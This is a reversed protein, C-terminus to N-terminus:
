NVGGGTLLLTAEVTNLLWSGSFFSLRIIGGLENNKIPALGLENNKIPALGLENIKIPTVSLCGFKIVNFNIVM